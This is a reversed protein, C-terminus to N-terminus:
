SNSSNLSLLDSLVTFPLEKRTYQFNSLSNAKNTPLVANSMQLLNPLAATSEPRTKHRMTVFNLQYTAM